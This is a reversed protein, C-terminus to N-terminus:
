HGKSIIVVNVKRLCSNCFTIYEIIITDRETARANAHMSVGDDCVDRREGMRSGCQAAGLAGLGRPGSAAGVRPIQDGCDM